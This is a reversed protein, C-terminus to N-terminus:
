LRFTTAQIRPLNVINSSISIHDQSQKHRHISPNRERSAKRVGLLNTILGDGVWIVMVMKPTTITFGDGVRLAM